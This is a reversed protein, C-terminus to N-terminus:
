LNTLKFSYTFCKFNLNEGLNYIRLLDTEKRIDVLDRDKGQFYKQDTLISICTANGKFVVM